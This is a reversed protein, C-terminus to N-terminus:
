SQRLADLLALFDSASLSAGGILGGDIDKQSFLATANDPKVSGGYLIAMTQATGGDFREKLWTRIRAHMAQAQEPSAVEGTGIAWVPEYAIVVNHAEEADVTELATALQREVVTWEQGSQREQLSEGVCLIPSIETDLAARIKKGITPDTEHFYTRRESHGVLVADVELDKLMPLSVEGTFAGSANEHCNQAAVSIEPIEWLRQVSWALHTFPPAVVVHVDGIREPTLGESLADLLALGDHPTTNMKWNGALMKM